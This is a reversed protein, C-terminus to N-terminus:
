QSYGLTIDDDLSSLSNGPSALGILKKGLHSSIFYALNYPSSLSEAHSYNMTAMHVIKAHVQPSLTDLEFGINHLLHSRGFILGCLDLM